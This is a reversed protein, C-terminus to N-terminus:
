RALLLLMDGAARMPGAIREAEPGAGWFVDVRGPGAIAAGADQVCAFRSLPVPAGAEGPRQSHIWVLSGLPYSGPDVAVSRGATLPVGLSGIPGIPLPRFFVYRENAFLIRDREEPRARLYDRLTALSASELPVGGSEVLLKGISRYERGNSGAFGVQMATGDEFRLLGSGQVHLFFLDIPDDVWALELDRGRLAGDGDIEARSHYPVLRGNEQRGITTAHECEPCQESHDTRVLDDPVEYLPHAWRESPERAARLEPQFYGTFLLGGAPAARLFRFRERLLASWDHPEPATELIQEFLTLTRVLEAVRVRGAATPYAREPPLRELQRLSRRVCTLLSAPDSDDALPPLSAPAVEALPPPPEDDELFSPLPVEPLGLDHWLACGPLGLLLAAVLGLAASARTM